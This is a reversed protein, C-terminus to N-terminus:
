QHNSTPRSQGKPPGADTCPEGRLRALICCPQDRKHLIVVKETSRSCAVHLLNRVEDCESRDQSVDMHRTGRSAGCVYTVHFEKGKAAHATMVLVRARAIMRRERAVCGEVAQWAADVLAEAGADANRRVFEGVAKCWREVPETLFADALWVSHNERGHKMADRMSQALSSLDGAAATPDDSGSLYVQLAQCARDRRKVNTPTLADANPGFWCKRFDRPIAVRRMRELALKAAGTATPMAQVRLRGTFAWTLASLFAGIEEDLGLIIHFLPRGDGYKKSFGDSVCRLLAWTPCLVAVRKGLAAASRVESKIANVYAKPWENESEGKSEGQLESVPRLLVCRGLGPIRQSRPPADCTHKIASAFEALQPQSATRPCQELTFEHTPGLAREARLSELRKQPNAGRWLYIAQKPDAMCVLVSDRSLERIFAWEVGNTDQFEDVFISPYRAGTHCRLVASEALIRYAFYPWSDYHLLGQDYNRRLLRDAENLLRPECVPQFLPDMLGAVMSTANSLEWAKRRDRGNPSGGMKRSLKELAQDVEHPLWTRWNRPVGYYRVHADLLRKYLSHYNTIEVRPSLGPNAKRWKRMENEVQDVASVSFTLILARQYDYPLTQAAETALQVTTWTKGSGPGGRILLTRHGREFLACRIQDITEANWHQAAM